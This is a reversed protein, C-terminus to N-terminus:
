WFITNIGLLKMLAEVYFYDGYILSNDKFGSKNFGCGHLLLGEQQEDDGSSYHLFLCKIISEAILLYNASKNREEVLKALEMLGCAFISAASTDKEASIENKFCFDWVPVLDAPLNNIFYETVRIAADFFEKIGTYKYALTFGYSCWAQGRSWCSQDSHGQFTKGAVHEGTKYNINYTHYTSCDDRIITKLVTHAHNVAAERYSENGSQEAAWFLLPINLMSDIIIKGKKEERFEVTDDPWDNWAKIFKGIPNYRSFLINAAELATDKAKESGTLRYDAVFALSYLFGADHDLSGSAKKLREYLRNQSLRAADIFKREGTRDYLYWLMGTWFSGTWGGDEVFVYKGNMTYNPMKDGFVAINSDVKRYVHRYAKNLWVKKSKKGDANKMDM